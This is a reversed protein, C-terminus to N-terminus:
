LDPVGSRAAELKHGPNVIRQAAGNARICEV